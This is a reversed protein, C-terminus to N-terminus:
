RPPRQARGAAGAEARRVAARALGIRQRQGGSLTAGGDGLETDYAQPLRVIMDHVGALRAAAIVAQSDVPGLRAINHAVTGAFLEVDQPLYGIHGALQEAALEGPRRRGPARHRREAPAVRADAAALTTKGSASPGIVGLCEGAALGLSLDKILPPRQVDAFLSVRELSLEGRVAPM